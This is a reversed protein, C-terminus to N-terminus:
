ILTRWIIQNVAPMMVGVLTTNAVSNVTVIPNESSWIRGRSPIVKDSSGSFLSFLVGGASSPICDQVCQDKHNIKFFPALVANVFGHGFM